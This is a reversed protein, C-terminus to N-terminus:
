CTYGNFTVNMCTISTARMDYDVGQPDTSTLHNILDSKNLTTPLDQLKDVYENIFKNKYQKSLRKWSTKKLSARIEDDVFSNISQFSEFTTVNRKKAEADSSRVSNETRAQVERERTALGYQLASLERAFKKTSDDVVPATPAAIM